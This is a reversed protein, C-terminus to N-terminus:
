INEKEDKLEKGTEVLTKGLLHDYEHLFVQAAYGEFRTIHPRGHEDQYEATVAVPRSVEFKRGPLSLCGETKVAKTPNLDILKPNLVFVNKRPKFVTPSIFFFAQRVNMQNAAIGAGRNLRCLKRVKKSIKLVEAPDAPCSELLNESLIGADPDGLKVVKIKGM